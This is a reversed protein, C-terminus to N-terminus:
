LFEINEITVFIIIENLLLSINCQQVQWASSILSDRFQKKVSFLLLVDVAYDHSKETKGDRELQRM